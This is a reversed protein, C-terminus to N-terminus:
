SIRGTMKFRWYQLLDELSQKWDIEPSWNIYMKLRSNDGVLIPVDSPRMRTKDEQTRIGAHSLSSLTELVSEMTHGKGSCINLVEGNWKKESLAWYAKVTDRVDTFDRIASLNGHSVVDRKKMEIEIIQRVFNSDVFAEGRRPGTQNFTRTRLINMQYSKAYQYGLYDTAVKSVAYPSLPRLPNTEKIPCEEPLVMGYEESSGALQVFTNPSM